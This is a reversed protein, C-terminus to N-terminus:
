ELYSMESESKNSERALYSVPAVKLDEPLGGKGVAILVTDFPVAKSPTSIALKLGIRFADKRGKTAAFISGFERYQATFGRFKM